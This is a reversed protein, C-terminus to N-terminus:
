SLSSQKSQFFSIGQLSVAALTGSKLTSLPNSKQRWEARLWTGKPLTCVACSCPGRSLLVPYSIKALVIASAMFHFSLQLHLLHKSSLITFDVQGHTSISSCTVPATNSQTPLPGVVMTFFGPTAAETSLQYVRHPIYQSLPEMGPPFTWCVAPYITQLVSLVCQRTIYM